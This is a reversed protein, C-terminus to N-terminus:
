LAINQTWSQKEVLSAWCLAFTLHIKRWGLGKERQHSSKSSWNVPRRRHRQRHRGRQLSSRMKPLSPHTCASRRIIVQSRGGKTHGGRWAKAVRRGKERVGGIKGRGRSAQHRCSLRDGWWSSVLAPVLSKGITQCRRDSFETRPSISRHSCLM